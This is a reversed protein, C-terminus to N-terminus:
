VEPERQKVLLILVGLGQTKDASLRLRTGSKVGVPIRVELSKGDISFAQTSGSAMEEPSLLLTHKLPPPPPEAARKVHLMVVGLGQAKEGRLRLKTGVGVGAPIRVVFSKGQLNFAQVCGSEMEQSTLLLTHELPASHQPVPEESGKLAAGLSVAERCYQWTCCPLGLEHRLTEAICPIQSTGGVLLLMQPKREPERISDCLMLAMRAAQAVDNAILNEFAARSLEVTLAGRSSPLRLKRKEQESLTEKERRLRMLIRGQVEPAEQELDVQQRLHGAVHQWLREDFLEGGMDTRGDTYSSHVATEKGNLSVLAMDLTGGGWDVILAEGSFLGEPCLRCFALGAAEPESLLEVECFGAKRAAEQLDLRQAHSFSVPCTIVARRVTQGLFVKQECSQRVHRLFESTLECATYERFEGGEDFGLVPYDSGLEMKFGRCYRTADMEQEDDAADGFLFRGGELAYITTPLYDAGRGLRIPRPLGTAPDCYSVLTKTTGFDIGLLPTQM